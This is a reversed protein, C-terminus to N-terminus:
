LEGPQATRERWHIYFANINVNVTFCWVVFGWGPPIIIPSEVLTTESAPLRLLIPDAVALVQTGSQATLVPRASGGQPNWRGDRVGPTGPALALAQQTLAGMVSSAGVNVQYREVTAIVRSGTPNFIGFASNNGAVATVSGSFAALRESKLFGWEPRDNELTIGPFLAPEVGPSPAPGPTTLRRALLQNLEFEAVANHQM